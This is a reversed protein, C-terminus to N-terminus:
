AQLDPLACRAHVLQRLETLLDRTDSLVRQVCIEMARQPQDTRARHVCLAGARAPCVQVATAQLVYRVRRQVREPQPPV